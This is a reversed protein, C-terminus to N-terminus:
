RNRSPAGLLSFTTRYGDDRTPTTAARDVVTAARAADTVTVAAILAGCAAIVLAPRSRFRQLQDM